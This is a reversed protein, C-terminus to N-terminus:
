GIRHFCTNGKQAQLVALFLRLPIESPPLIHCPPHEHHVGAPTETFLFVFRQAFRSRAIWRCCTSDEGQPWWVIIKM